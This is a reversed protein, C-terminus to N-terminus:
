PDIWQIGIADAVGIVSAGAERHISAFRPCLQLVLRRSLKLMVRHVARKGIVHVAGLLIARIDAAGTAAFRAHDSALVPEHGAAAFATKNKGVWRVPVDDVRVVLAVNNAVVFILLFRLVYAYQREIVGPMAGDIKGM